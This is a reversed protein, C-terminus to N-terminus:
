PIKMEFVDLIEATEFNKNYKQANFYKKEPWKKL